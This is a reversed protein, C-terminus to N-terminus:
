KLVAKLVEIVVEGDIGGMLCVLAFGGVFIWRATADTIELKLKMTLEKDHTEYRNLARRLDGFVVSISQESVVSRRPRM